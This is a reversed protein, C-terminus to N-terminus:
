GIGSRGSPDGYGPDMNQYKDYGSTPMGDDVVVADPRRSRYGLYAGAIALAVGTVRCAGIVYDVANDHNVPVRQGNIHVYTTPTPELVFSLALLAAGVALLIWALPRIRRVNSM